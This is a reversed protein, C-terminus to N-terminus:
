NQTFSYFWLSIVNQVGPIAYIGVITQDSKFLHNTHTLKIFYENFVCMIVQIYRKSSSCAKFKRFQCENQIPPIWIFFFHWPSAVTKFDYHLPFVGWLFANWPKWLLRSYNEDNIYNVNTIYVSCSQISRKIRIPQHVHALHASM